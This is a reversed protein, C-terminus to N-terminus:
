TFRHMHALQLDKFQRQLRSPNSTTSLSSSPRSGNPTGHRPSNGAKPSNRPSPSTNSGVFRHVARLARHRGSSPTSRSSLGARSWCVGAYAVLLVGCAGLVVILVPYWARLAHHLERRQRRRKRANAVVFHDLKWSNNYMHYVFSEQNDPNWYRFNCGFATQPLVVLDMVQGGEAVAEPSGGMQQLYSNIESTWIGPGTRLLIAADHGREQELQQGDAAEQEVVAKIATGMRCVVPHSRKSAMTWQTIQIKHVYSAEEAEEQSYFRNEVGVVLGPESVTSFNLWQAFPRACITDTDAYIGGHGCLVHYRWADSKEVPTKLQKYVPMFAPYFHEMYAAIDSDDYLLLTYGKHYRGWSLMSLIQHPALLHKDRTTMHILKPISHSRKHLMKLYILPDLVFNFGPAALHMITTVTSIDTMENPIQLVPGNVHLFKQPVAHLLM